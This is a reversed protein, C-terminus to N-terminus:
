KEVVPPKVNVLISPFDEVLWIPEESKINKIYENASKKIQRNKLRMLKVPRYSGSGSCAIYLTLENKNEETTDGTKVKVVVKGSVTYGNEPTAAVFYSSPIYKKDLVQRKIGDILLRSREEEIGINMLVALMKDSDPSECAINYLVVPLFSAVAVPDNMVKKIREVFDDISKVVLECESDAVTVDSVNVGRKYLKLGSIFAPLNSVLKFFIFASSIIFMKLFLDSCNKWVAFIGDLFGFRQPYLPYIEIYQRIFVYFFYAIPVIIGIWLLVNVIKKMKLKFDIKSM